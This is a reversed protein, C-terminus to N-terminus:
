GASAAEGEDPSLVAEFELFRGLGEVEDLHARVNHWLYVERRKRVAGRVGLAATLAIKLLAPDPAPVLFYDCGRPRDLDPRDYWILVAPQGDIERLQLRGHAARFFTDLQSETSTLRAGLRLAAERAAPLDPCRAKLELNRRLPATM